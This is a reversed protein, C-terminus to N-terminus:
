EIQFLASNMITVNPTMKVTKWNMPFNIIEQHYMAYDTKQRNKFLKPSMKAKGQPLQKLYELQDM